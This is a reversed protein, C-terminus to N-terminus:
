GATSRTLQTEGDKVIEVIYDIYSYLVEESIAEPLKLAHKIVSFIFEM